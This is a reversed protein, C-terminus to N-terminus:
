LSQGELEPQVGSNMFVLSFAVLLVFVSYRLFCIYFVVCFAFSLSSGTTGFFVGTMTCLLFTAM